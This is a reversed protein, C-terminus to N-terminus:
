FHIQKRIVYWNEIKLGVKSGWVEIIIPHQQVKYIKIDNQSKVKSVGYIKTYM